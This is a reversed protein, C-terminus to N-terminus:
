DDSGDDASEDDDRLTLASVSDTPISSVNARALTKAASSLKPVIPGPKATQSRNSTDKSSLWARFCPACRSHPKGHRGIVSPIPVSCSSCKLSTISTTSAVLSTAYQDAKIDVM